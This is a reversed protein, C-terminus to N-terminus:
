NKVVYQKMTWSLQSVEDETYITGYQRAIAQIIEPWKMDVASLTLFWTPIELTQIMALVEYFIKQWYPPSGSISKLFSYARDRKFLNQIHQPNKLM